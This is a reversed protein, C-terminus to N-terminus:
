IGRGRPVTRKTSQRGAQNLLRVAYKGHCGTLAVFEDPMRSKDRM